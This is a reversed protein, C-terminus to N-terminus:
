RRTKKVKKGFPGVFFTLLAKGVLRRDQRVDCDVVAIHRGRRLVQAEAEVIGSDVGELFNIKMEITATRAGPPCTTFTAFGGATDALAALVGGHVVGHVQKHRAGVRMRLIVRGIQLVVIEFGFHSTINTIKLRRRLEQAVM